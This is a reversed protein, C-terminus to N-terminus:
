FFRNQHQRLAPAWIGRSSEVRSLDLQEPRDLANAFHRWYRLDRSQFIPLGPFFGFSSCALYFDGAVRCISPDPFFGPIVPQKV